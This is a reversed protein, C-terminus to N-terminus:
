WVMGLEKFATQAEGLKQAEGSEGWWRLTWAGEGLMTATPM